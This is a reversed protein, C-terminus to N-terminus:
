EVYDEGLIKYYKKLLKTPTLNGSKIYAEQPTIIQFSECKELEHIGLQSIKWSKSFKFTMCLNSDYCFLEGNVLYYELRNNKM